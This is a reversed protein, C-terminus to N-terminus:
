SLRIRVAGANHYLGGVPVGGTAAAADTAYNDAVKVAGVNVAANFDLDDRHVKAASDYNAGTRLYKPM